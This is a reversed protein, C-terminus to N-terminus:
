GWDAGGVGIEQIVERQGGIRQEPAAEEWCPRMAGGSLCPTPRRPGAPFRLFRCGHHELLCPEREMQGVPGRMGGECGQGQM